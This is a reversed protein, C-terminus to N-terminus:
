KARAIMARAIELARVESTDRIDLNLEPIQNSFDTVRKELVKDRKFWVADSDGRWESDWAEFFLRFYGLVKRRQPFTIALSAQYSESVSDLIVSWRLTFGSGLQAEYGLEVEIPFETDPLQNIWVLRQGKLGSSRVLGDLLRFKEFAATVLTVRDRM